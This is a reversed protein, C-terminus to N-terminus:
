CRRYAHSSRKTCVRSASQQIKSRQVASMSKVDRARFCFRCGQGWVMWQVYPHWFLWMRCSAFLGWLNSWERGNRLVRKTKWGNKGKGLSVRKHSSGPVRSTLDAGKRILRLMSPAGVADLDWVWGEWECVEQRNVVDKDKPTGTGRGVWHRHTM